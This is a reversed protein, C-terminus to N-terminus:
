IYALSDGPLMTIPHLSKWPELEHAFFTVWGMVTTPVLFIYLHCCYLLLFINMYKKLFLFPAMVRQFYIRPQNGIIGVFAWALRKLRHRTHDLRHTHHTHPHHMNWMNRGYIALEPSKWSPISQLEKSHSPPMTWVGTWLKSTRMNKGCAMKGISWAGIAPRGLQTPFHAYADHIHACAGVCARVLVGVCWAHWGYRGVIVGSRDRKDHARDPYAGSICVAAGIAPAWNKEGRNLRMRLLSLM